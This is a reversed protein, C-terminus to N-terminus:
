TTLGAAEDQVMGLREMVLMFPCQGPSHAVVEPLGLVDFAHDLLARAMETAYGRGLFQRQMM